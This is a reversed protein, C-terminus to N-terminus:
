RHQFMVGTDLYVLHLLKVTDLFYMTSFSLITWDMVVLDFCLWIDCCAFPFLRIALILCAWGHPLM